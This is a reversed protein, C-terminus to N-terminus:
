YAKYGGWSQPIQQLEAYGSATDNGCYKFTNDHSSPRVEQTSAQQYLALAGSQVNYCYYFMSDMNTASSTDFLPVSTLSTCNHMMDSFDIVSSTDFLPVSALSRCNYFMSTMGAVNSTNFLPVTTLSTCGQFTSWMSLVNSTDFLPVTTLSTCGEFMMNMYAVNSTDFLPVTTLSTCRSFMRIMYEVNSTNAGIVELLDTNNNTGYGYWFLGTWDNDAKYIDWINDRVLTQTDGCTPTYGDVFRCRITNAPLNLPNLPDVKKIWKGDVNLVKNNFTIM